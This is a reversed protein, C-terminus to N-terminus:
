PGPKTEDEGEENAGHPYYSVEANVAAVATLPMPLVGSSEGSKTIVEALVLPSAAMALIAFASTYKKMIMEGAPTNKKMIMAGAPINKKM